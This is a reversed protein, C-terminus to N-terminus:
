CSDVLSTGAWYRQITSEWMSCTVWSRQLTPHRTITVQLNQRRPINLRAWAEALRGNHLTSWGGRAHSASHWSSESSLPARSWGKCSEVTWDISHHSWYECYYASLVEIRGNWLIDLNFCYWHSQNQARWCRFLCTKLRASDEILADVWCCLGVESSLWVLSPLHKAIPFIFSVLHM